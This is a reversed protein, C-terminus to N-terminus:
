FNYVLHYNFLNSVSLPRAQALRQTNVLASALLAALCNSACALSGDGLTVGLSANAIEM